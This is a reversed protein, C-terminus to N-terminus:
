NKEPCLFWEPAIKMKLVAVARLLNAAVCVSGAGIFGYQGTAPIFRYRIACLGFTLLSVSMVIDAVLAIYHPTSYTYLLGGNRLPPQKFQMPRVFSFTLASCLM